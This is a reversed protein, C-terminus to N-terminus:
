TKNRASINHEDYIKKIEAFSLTQVYASSMLFTNILKDKMKEISIESKDFFLKRLQNEYRKARQEDLPIEDEMNDKTEIINDRLKLFKEKMKKDKVKKSFEYIKQATEEMLDKTATGNIIKERIEPKSGQGSLVRDNISEILPTISADESLNYASILIGLLKTRIRENEFYEWVKRDEGKSIAYDMLEHFNKNRVNPNNNFSSLKEAVIFSIMIEGRENEQHIIEHQDEWKNQINVENELECRLPPWVAKAEGPFKKLMKINFLRRNDMNYIYYKNESRSYLIRERDKNIPDRRNMIKLYPFEMEELRVLNGYKNLQFDVATEKLATEFQNNINTKRAATNFVNQEITCRSFDRYNSVKPKKKSEDYLQNIIKRDVDHNIEPYKKFTNLVSCHYFVDVYQKNEELDSHSCFRIGRGIIQEMEAENWWPSTIHIEKVRKLDIGEVVTTFIVKCLSGDRNKPHNFIKRLNSFYLKQNKQDKIGMYDLASTSWLAFKNEGKTNELDFSDLFKWGLLKLVSAQTLIGYWIWECYVVIPGENRKSSEIIRNLIYYFKRSYKELTKLIEDRPKESLISILREMEASRDTEKEIAEFLGSGKRRKDEPLYANCLQRARLYRGEQGDSAQKNTAQEAFPKKKVSENVMVDKKIESLLAKVYGDTQEASMEHLVINNRRLPFGKPNAGQSYSVYGSFIYQYCLKNKMLYNDKDTGDIFFEEFQLRGQPFPIRPRQLALILSAEHPNDYIPTATLLIVKVRPEGTLKDRAYINLTNHLKNYKIGDERTVKQVEDIILVAKDSHFCDHHPLKVKKGKETKLGLIYDSAVNNNNVKSTVKNLFTDHTIVYYVKDINKNITEILKEKQNMLDIREKNLNDLKEQLVKQMRKKKNKNNGRSSDDDSDDSEETDNDSEEESETDTGYSDSADKNKKNMEFIDNDLKAIAIEIKYIKELNGSTHKGTKKDIMGTYFQRMNIYNDPDQDSEESYVCAGTCSRIEGNELAGRIENVYQNLTQPPVVVIINCLGQVVPPGKESKVKTQPIFSGKRDIFTNGNKIYRSKNSEAIIISTCSKGSGLRHYVLMSPFNTMNSMHCGLFKQHPQLTFEKHNCVNESSRNINTKQYAFPSEIGRSEFYDVYWYQVYNYIQGPKYLMPDDYAKRGHVEKGNVNQVWPRKMCPLNKEIFDKKDPYYYRICGNDNDPDEVYYFVEDVEHDSRKIIPKNDNKKLFTLPRSINKKEEKQEKDAIFDLNQSYEKELAHRLIDEEQM